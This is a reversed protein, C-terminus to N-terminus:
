LRKGLAGLAPAIAQLPLVREAADLLVAERPMGYVVSTAEDQAITLGGARRIDLLGSAGDRGMGTLLCGAAASGIERAVSEFLVDVSPRCSHREPDRTLHLRGGGVVLHRNPPAMVVRGVTGSLPEGDVAFAVPRSSQGDLWDAFAQGFPEGIHLVLLIPLRLHHPLARLIDVIAGPGGTSAGIAITTCEQRSGAVVPVFSALGLADITASPPQLQRGRLHTIVRIRSVLKLLGLFKEEWVGDPEDGRPKELVDVAGASLAEYTRFLEGRNTSASVVLIPTPCHAMIYETAALGTMVPLMMDLTIVDPRLALCLEIARKGDEAEGVVDIEPDATLVEVLRRRVTLSDEVVLVRTRRQM